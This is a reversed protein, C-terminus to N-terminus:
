DEEEEEAPSAIKRARARTKKVRRTAEELAGEADGLASDLAALGAKAGVRLFSLLIPHYQSAM